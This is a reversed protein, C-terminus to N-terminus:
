LFYLIDYLKLGYNLGWSFLIRGLKQKIKRWSRFSDKMENGESEKRKEAVCCLCLM